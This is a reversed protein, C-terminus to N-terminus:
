SWASRGSAEGSTGVARAVFLLTEGLVSPGLALRMPVWIPATLVKRLTTAFSGGTTVQVCEFGCESLMMSLQGAQIPSIHRQNRYNKAGFGWLDGTLAFKIRGEFFAINPTSVVLHGGEKLLKRCERLFARPDDLHEIVECAIVCDFGRAPISASFEENFDCATFDSVEETLHNALDAASIHTYGSARLRAVLAGSFAGLDLIRSARDVHGAVLEVIKRHTGPAAAIRHNGYYELPLRLM